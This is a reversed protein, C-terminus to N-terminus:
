QGTLRREIQEQEAESLLDPDYEGSDIKVILHDIYAENYAYRNNLQKDVEIWNVGNYKYLVSPLRDVRLFTDGKKQGLPFATGFGTNNEKVPANDPELALYASDMWPLNDIQGTELLRQQSKITRSPNEEKWRRAAAKVEADMGDLHDNDPDASDARTAVADEKVTETEAIRDTTVEAVPSEKNTGHYEGNTTCNQNPCFLGIGPADV